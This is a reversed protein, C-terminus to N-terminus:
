CCKGEDSYNSFDPSIQTSFDLVLAWQDKTVVNKWQEQPPLMPDFLMHLICCCCLCLHSYYARKLSREYGEQADGRMGVGHCVEDVSHLIQESRGDGGDYRSFHAFSTM